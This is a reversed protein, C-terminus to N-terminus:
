SSVLQELAQALVPTLKKWDSQKRIGIELGLAPSTIGMLPKFPLALPRHCILRHTKAAEKCSKYVQTAFEDTKKLSLKYTQDFPMLSLESGKKELFDTAPDFMLTYIFLSTKEEQQEFFHLSIYLEAGLRNSFSINQLPELTEGPSRTLLVKIQPNKEEILTKLEQAMQLTLSREFTDDIERGPNQSDGAPDIVIIKKPTPAVPPLPEEQSSFFSWGSALSGFLLLLILPYTTRM